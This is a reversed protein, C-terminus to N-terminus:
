RQNIKHNIYDVAVKVTTFDLFVNDPFDIDEFIVILEGCIVDANLGDAEGVMIPKYFYYQSDEAKFHIVHSVYNNSSWYLREDYIESKFLPFDLTIEQQEIKIVEAVIDRIKEFIEQYEM